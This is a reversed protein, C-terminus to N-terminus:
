YSRGEATKDTISRRAAPWCSASSLLRAAEVLATAGDTGVHEIEAGGALLERVLEARGERAAQLLAANDTRGPGSPERAM